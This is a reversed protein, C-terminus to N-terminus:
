KVESRIGYGEPFMWEESGIQETSAYWPMPMVGRFPAEGMLVNAVGRGESGPLYCMVAADWDDLYDGIVVQRGAVICAATPIGYEDKLRKAEAIAEANGELAHSGTLSIDESDGFWEAYTREGVFLLTVDAEPADEPDTLITIGKTGGVEKLGDLITTVGPVPNTVKNWDLTWGGCQAAENDAAPGTVYVKMGERLPLVAGASELLTDKQIGEQADDRGGDRDANKILVLSEEVAREALERYKASGVERQETKVNMQMPDDMLGADIKVQLIRRVADDIREMPISGERVAELVLEYTEEYEIPEMLMDVGANVANILKEKFSAGSISHISEYDSDIMGEFGLEERLVRIYEGNEHMKVGNVSGHSLMITQAGADIQGRYVELLEGIEEDSLTADGRDILNGDEGTGWAEAGDGFYHKPCAVLGHEVLGRTYAAALVNVKDPDSSLSEYIRGWRPDTAVAVCPFFNWLMGTVKAEDAVVAGIEYMLEKDNAAGLGIHHPFIVAGECYAVGHADDQGYLMPLGTESALAAEQYGNVIERWEEQSRHESNGIGFVSGFDWEKMDEADAYALGPQLMQCIKEELTLKDLIEQATLGTFWYTQAPAEEMATQAPAEAASTQEPVEEAATQVPAEEAATQAPAEEVATQAPAEEAATQTPAEEVATQAPAQEVATQAPAEEPGACSALMIASILIASLFHSRIKHSKRFM